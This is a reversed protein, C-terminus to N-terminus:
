NSYRIKKELIRICNNNMISKYEKLLKIDNTEEIYKVIKNIAEELDDNASIIYCKMAEKIDKTIYQHYKGQNFSLISEASM